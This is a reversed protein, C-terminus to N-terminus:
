FLIHDLGKRSMAVVRSSRMIEEYPVRWTHESPARRCQIFGFRDSGYIIAGAARAAALFRTDEGRTVDAFGLSAATERPTLITPGAVFMGFRHELQEFRLCVASLDELLVYHAAKGVIDAGSYRLANIQDFLYYQSYLDDDDMKAVFEGSARSLALNYCAGLTARSDMTLWTVNIQPVTPLECSEASPEFGHCVVVAEVDVNKQAAIQNLAHRLQQPRNTALLVTIKPESDNSDRLGVDNLITRVRHTYTHSQWIKRQATHTIRDRLEPSGCLARIWNAAEQRTKPQLVEGEPFYRLIAKSEGSVVPTGCALIEFIRRACMSTSNDISNVNLFVRYMRYATLMQEYSLEGLVRNAYEAPFKYAPDLDKFRSFIELGKELKASADLAGGLVIDMQRRRGAYKKRFYTGGFAVDRLCSEKVGERRVPNHIAPQAAFPLLGVPAAVGAAGYKGICGEDTTYVYDFLKAVEIFDEFHVPDEKNWFVTPVGRARCETVLEILNKSPANAGVIQHEWSNHNGHWASEVFLIEIKQEELQVRWCKPDLVIQIWEYEFALRTFDDAIIGVRVVRRSQWSESDPILAPRVTFEAGEVGKLKMEGVEFNGRGKPVTVRRRRRYEVLQSIGGHRLHWLHRRISVLPKYFRNIM